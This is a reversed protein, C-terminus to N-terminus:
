AETQIGTIEIIGDAPFMVVCGFDIFYSMLDSVRVVEHTSDQRQSQHVNFFM